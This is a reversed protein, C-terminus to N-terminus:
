ERAAIKELDKADPLYRVEIGASLAEVTKEVKGWVKEAEVSPEKRPQRLRM